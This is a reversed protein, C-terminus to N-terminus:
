GRELRVMKTTAKVLGAAAVAMRLADGDLPRPLVREINLSKKLDDSLSGLGVITGFWGKDRISHLHLLEGADLADFDAILMQPRTPVDDVLADVAERVSRVTHLTVGTGALQHGIWTALREDPALAIASGKAEPKPRDSV